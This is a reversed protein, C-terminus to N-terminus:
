LIIPNEPNPLNSQLIGEKTGNLAAHKYSRPYNNKM